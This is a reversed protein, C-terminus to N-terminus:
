KGCKGAGCKGKGCKGAKKTSASFAEFEEKSIKGDKDTDIVIFMAENGKAFEDADVGGDKNTDFKTVKMCEDKDLKGDKNKDKATFEKASNKVFEDKSIYGDNDEDLQSYMDVKENFEGKEASEEEKTAEKHAPTEEIIKKEVASEKKANDNGCSSLFVFGTLLFALFALKTVNMKKM